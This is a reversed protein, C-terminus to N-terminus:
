YVQVPGADIVAMTGPRPTPKTGPLAVMVTAALRYTGEPLLNGKVNLNVMDAPKITGEAEGVAQGARSGRSKGYISAKYNLPINGPVTMESLDLTLCVDFPQDHPLLSRPEPSGAVLIKMDRLHLTGALAPMAALPTSEAVVVPAHEPEEVVAPAHEPEEANALVPEVPTVNVAASEGLFDVLESKPWDSWTHERRSQVHMVHTSHVNNNEDLLLEVTFTAPHYHNNSPVAVKEPEESLTAAHADEIPPTPEVPATFTAVQETEAPAEVEEQAESSTSEVALKHAQQPEIQQTAAPAHEEVPTPTEVPIVIDQQAEKALSGTVLKRAQGIWDQKVIREASLGALGAVAAAIDAPSLAALQAFTFIGVGNLRKEVVPGIGNILKLDDIRPPEAARNTPSRKSAM